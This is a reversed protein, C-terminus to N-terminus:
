CNCPYKVIGCLENVVNFDWFGDPTEGILPVGLHSTKDILYKLSAIKEEIALDEKENSGWINGKCLCAHKDRKAGFQVTPDSDNLHIVDLRELGIKEDFDEFFKVVDEIKGFHYQGSGFIHMTDICIGVQDRYKEDVGNIVYALQDLDRGLKTGEGASNEIFVRRKKVFEEVPKGFMQAYQETVDSPESLVRNITNISTDLGKKTDVCSGAHVVVGSDGSTSTAASHSDLSSFGAAIDLEIKLKDVTKSHIYPDFGKAGGAINYMLCGHICGFKESRQLVTAAQYVDIPSIYPLDYAKPNAVYLQLSSVQYANEFKMFTETLTAEKKVHHGWKASPDVYILDNNTYSM